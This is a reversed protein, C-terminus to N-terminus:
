LPAGKLLKDVDQGVRQLALARREDGQQRAEEESKQARRKIVHLGRRYTNTKHIYGVLVEKLEDQILQKLEPTSM